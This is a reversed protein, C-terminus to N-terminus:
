SECRDDKRFPLEYVGAGECKKCFVFLSRQKMIVGDGDCKNCIIFEREHGVLACNKERWCHHCFVQGDLPADRPLIPDDETITEQCRGCVPDAAVPPDIYRDPVSM